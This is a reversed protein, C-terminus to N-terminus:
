PPPLRMRNPNVTFAPCIQNFIQVLTSSRTNLYLSSSLYLNTTDARRSVAEDDVDVDECAM